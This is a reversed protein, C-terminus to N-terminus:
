TAAADAPQEAPPQGSPRRVDARNFRQAFFRVCYRHWAWGAGAFVVIGVLGAVIFKVVDPPIHDLERFSRFPLFGLILPPTFGVQVAAPWEVIEGWGRGDTLFAVPMYCLLGTVAWHLGLVFASIAIALGSAQFTHRCRVSCWVGVSAFFMAFALWAAGALLAGFPNLGGTLMGILYVIGLWLLGRRPGLIAGLWKGLIIERNTLPTTLLDDLTQRSRESTVSGAARMAVALLLLSGGLGSMM